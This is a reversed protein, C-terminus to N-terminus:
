RRSRVVNSPPVRTAVSYRSSFRPMIRVGSPVGPRCAFRCTIHRYGPWIGALRPALATRDGAVLVTMGISTADRLLGLFADVTRGGDHEESAIAFGEWGDVVLLARQSEAKATSAVTSTAAHNSRGEAALDTLREILRAIADFDDRSLV